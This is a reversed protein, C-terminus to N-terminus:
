GYKMMRPDLLDVFDIYKHHDLGKTADLKKQVQKEPVSKQHLLNQVFTTVIFYSNFRPDM